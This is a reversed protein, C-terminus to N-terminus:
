VSIKFRGGRVISVGHLSMVVVVVLLLLMAYNRALVQLM